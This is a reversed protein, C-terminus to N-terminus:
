TLWTSPLRLQPGAAAEHRRRARAPLACRDRAASRAALREIRLALDDDALHAATDGNGHVFVIPPLTAPRRAPPAASLSSCAHWSLALFPRRSDNKDDSWWHLFRGRRHGRADAKHDRRQTLRLRRRHGANKGVSRGPPAPYGRLDLELQTLKKFYHSGIYEDTVGIGGHLQVSNQGVFRMAVGLQYKARAMARRREEAPRM